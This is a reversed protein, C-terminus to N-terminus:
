VGLHNLQKPRWRCGRWEGEYWKEYDIANGTNFEYYGDIMHPLSNNYAWGKEDVADKVITWYTGYAKEIQEENTM